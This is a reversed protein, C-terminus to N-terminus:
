HFARGGDVVLTSGTTYKSEHSTLHLAAYAIDETEGTRKMAPRNAAERRAGDPDGTEQYWEELLPTNIVGPCVVNVRLGAQAFELALTRSFMILGAKSTCYATRNVLPRLGAGSAINVITSMECKLLAPMSAQCLQMPGTLNVTLVRDWDSATTERFERFLDVGAVNVIGDLTGLTRVAKAVASDVHQRSAVDCEFTHARDLGAAVEELRPSNIDFLAVTAGESCFLRAIAAGIGSAAGTILINRDKLRM